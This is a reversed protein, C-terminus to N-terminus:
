KNDKKFSIKVKGYSLTSKVPCTSLCKFCNICQSSRINNKCSISINMPCGKDCRKCNICSIKDRKITFVKTLSPVAFKVADICLYNCFPREFLMSILLFSVMIILSVSITVKSVNEGISMFVERSNVLGFIVDGVGILTLLMIIYRSFKLYRQISQPMKYKRKFIKDGIAGFFDQASGYPCVWGCFFNGTIFSLLILLAFIAKVKMFYGTFLLSFFALQTLNRVTQIKKNM